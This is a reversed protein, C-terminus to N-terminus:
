VIASYNRFEPLFRRIGFHRANTLQFSFIKIKSKTIGAHGIPHRVGFFGGNTHIVQVYKADDYHLRHRINKIRFLPLAPDLAIIALSKGSTLHKGAVGSNNNSLILITNNSIM